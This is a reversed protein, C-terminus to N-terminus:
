SRLRVARGRGPRGFRTIPWRIARGTLWDASPPRDTEALYTIEGGAIRDSTTQLLRLVTIEIGDRARVAAVLDHAEPWWPMELAVPPLRGLVEGRHVLVVSALRGTAQVLALSSRPGRCRTVPDRASSARAAAPGAIM